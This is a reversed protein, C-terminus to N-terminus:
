LRSSFQPYGIDLIAQLGPKDANRVYQSQAL